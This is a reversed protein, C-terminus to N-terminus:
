QTSAAPNGSVDSFLTYAQPLSWPNGGAVLSPADATMYGSSLGSVPMNNGFAHLNSTDLLPLNSPVSASNSSNELGGASTFSDIGEGCSSYATSDISLPNSISTLSRTHHGHHSQSPAPTTFDAIPFSPNLPMTFPSVGCGMYPTNTDVQAQPPSATASTDIQPSAFNFDFSYQQQQHPQFPNLLGNASTELPNANSAALYANSSKNALHKRLEQSIRRKAGSRAFGGPPLTHSRRRGPFFGAPNAGIGLSLGFDLGNVVQSTPAQNPLPLDHPSFRSSTDSMVGSDSGADSETRARKAKNMDYIRKEELYKNRFFMKVEEPENKWGEGAMRSIETQSIEPQTGKLEQIKHNRYKIFANTPKLSKEKPKARPKPQRIKRLERLVFDVNTTNPIFVLCHGPVHEIFSVGDASCFQRVNKEMIGTEPTIEYATGSDSLANSSYFSESSSLGDLTNTDASPPQSTNIHAVSLSAPLQPSDSISAGQTSVSPTVPYAAVAPQSANGDSCVLPLGFHEVNQDTAHLSLAHDVM